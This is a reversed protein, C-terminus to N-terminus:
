KINKRILDTIRKVEAPSWCWGVAPKDIKAKRLAARAHKADWKNDQAIQQVTVLGEKSPRAPKETKKAVPAETPTKGPKVVKGTEHDYYSPVYEPAPAETEDPGRAAWTDYWGYPEPFVFERESQSQYEYELANELGAGRITVGRATRIMPEPKIGTAPSWQEWVYTDGAIMKDIFHKAPVIGDFSQYIFRRGFTVYLGAGNIEGKLRKDGFGLKITTAPVDTTDTPRTSVKTKKTRPM